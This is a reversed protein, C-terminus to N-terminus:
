ADGFSEFALHALREIAEISKAGLISPALHYDHFGDQEFDVHISKTFSKTEVLAKSNVSSNTATFIPSKKRKRTQQSKSSQELLPNVQSVLSAFEMIDDQFLDNDGTTMVTKFFPRSPPYFAKQLLSTTAFFPSILHSKVFRDDTDKGVYLAASASLFSSSLIDSVRKESPYIKNISLDLWPSILLLCHPLPITRDKGEVLLYLLSICLNSGASDGMLIYRTAMQDESSSSSTFFKYADLAFDLAAPFRLEPSLPYDVMMAEITITSTSTLSLLNGLKEILINMMDKGMLSSGLCFAGGHFYIIKVTSTSTTAKTKAQQQTNNRRQKRNRLNSAPGEGSASQVLTSERKYQVSYGYKSSKLYKYQRAKSPALLTSAQLAFYILIRLLSIPFLVTSNRIIFLAFYSLYKLM